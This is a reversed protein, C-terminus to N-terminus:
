IRRVDPDYRGLAAIAALKKLGARHLAGALYPPYFVVGYPKAGRWLEARRLAAMAESDLVVAPVCKLKAWMAAAIRHSGTLSQYRADRKAARAFLDRPPRTSPPLRARIEDQDEHLEYAWRGKKPVRGSILLLPRGTWGLKRMRRVLYRLRGWDEPDHPPEILVPSVCQVPSAGRMRKRSM